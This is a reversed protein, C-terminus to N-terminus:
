ASGEPRRSTPLVLDLLATRLDERADPVKAALWTLHDVDARLQAISEQLEVSDAAVRGAQEALQDMTVDLRARHTDVLAHAAARTDRTRTWQRWTTAAVAILVLLAM